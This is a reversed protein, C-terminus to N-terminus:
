LKLDVIASVGVGKVRALSSLDTVSRSSVPIMATVQIDTGIKKKATLEAVARVSAVADPPGSVQVAGAYTGQGISLIPVVKTALYPDRSKNGTVSNVFGDIQSSFKDVLAITAVGGLAGKFLNGLQAQAPSLSTVLMGALASASMLTALKVKTM